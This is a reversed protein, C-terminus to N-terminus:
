GTLFLIVGFLFLLHDYGTVMHKAGMYIFPILMVGTSEQIFFGKDGEAVAHALAEPMGIFLSAVLLFLLYLPHRSRMAFLGGGKLLAFAHILGKKCHNNAASRSKTLLLCLVPHANSVSSPPWPVSDGLM